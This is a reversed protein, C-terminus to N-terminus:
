NVTSKGVRDGCDNGHTFIAPGGDGLVSIPQSNTYNFRYNTKKHSFLLRTDDAFTVITGDSDIDCIENIYLIFQILVWYVLKRHVMNLKLRAGM